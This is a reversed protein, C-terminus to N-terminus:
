GERNREGRADGDGFAADFACENAANCTVRGTVASELASDHTANSAACHGFPLFHALLLTGLLLRPTCLRSNGFHSGSCCRRMHVVSGRVHVRRWMTTGFVSVFYHGLAFIADWSALSSLLNKKDMRSMALKRGPRRSAARAQRSSRFRQISSPRQCQTHCDPATTDKRAARIGAQRLWRVHLSPCCYSGM